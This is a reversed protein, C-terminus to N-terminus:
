HAAELYTYDLWLWTGNPLYLYYLRAYLTVNKKSTPIGKVEVSTATTATGNYVNSSGAGKTGLKLEFQTAGVGPNWAFTVTSGPLTSGPPPTTLAPPTLPPPPTYNWLDNLDGFSQAYGEGGFLWLNGSTDIWSAAGERAGPVDGAAPTGLTGYTGLQFGMNSGSMWTWEGTSPMFRWLDNIDGCVVNGSTNTYCSNGGFLWVNGNADTWIVEGNRAGPVNGAAPVGLMGYVGPQAGTNSGSMWTWEGTAPAYKWSDNLVTDASNADLGAGGFLWLNGSVDTWSVSGERGGPVNGAAPVGLTGYVPIRDRTNGGGVWTWEGSSPTFMWLDNLLGAYGIQDCLSYSDCGFGGFLLLNGSSDTWSISRFRAGPVNSTAPVGLTGYAGPQNVTTNGSMWTWQGIEPSYKWLDNYWGSHGQADTLPTSGGFLWLNGSADSWGVAGNRAGPVNGPAPVGLTGYVGPQNVTNSGGMWTWEGTSPSYKWLDNLYGSAGTADYGGGGFLWFNGSADTWRVPYNRSGPVNGVSSVGLAGYVGAQNVTNSGSMWTWEATQAELRPLFAGPFLLLLLFSILTGIRQASPFFYHSSVRELQIMQLARRMADFRNTAPISLPFSAQRM